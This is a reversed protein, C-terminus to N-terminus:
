WDPPIPIRRRKRDGCFRPDFVNSLQEVTLGGALFLKFLVWHCASDIMTPAPPLPFTKGMTNQTKGWRPGYHGHLVNPSGFEGRYMWLAFDGYRAGQRQEHQEGAPRLISSPRCSTQTALSIYYLVTVRWFFRASWNSDLCGEQLARLSSSNLNGRSRKEWSLAPAGKSPDGRIISLCVQLGNRRSLPDVVKGSSRHWAATFCIFFGLLTLASINDGIRGQAGGVYFKLFATLMSPDPFPLRLAIWNAFSVALVGAVKLNRPPGVFDTFVDRAAQHSIETSETIPRLELTPQATLIQASVSPISGPLPERSRKSGAQARRLARPPGPLSPTDIGPM